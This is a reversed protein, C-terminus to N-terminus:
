LIKFEKSRVPDYQIRVVSAADKFRGVSYIINSGSSKVMKFSGGGFDAVSGKAIAMVWNADDAPSHPSDTFWYPSNALISKANELGAEAIYFAKEKRIFLDLNKRESFMSSVLPTLILAVAAMLLLTVLLVQGNSKTGRM